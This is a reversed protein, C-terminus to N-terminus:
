LDVGVLRLALLVLVALLMGCFSGAVLFCGEPLVYLWNRVRNWM